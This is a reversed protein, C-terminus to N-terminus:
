GSPVVDHDASGSSLWQENLLQYAGGLERGDGREQLENEFKVAQSFNYNWDIHLGQTRGHDKKRRGGDGGGGSSSDRHGQATNSDDRYSTGESCM